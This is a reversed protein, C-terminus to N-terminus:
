LLKTEVAGVGDGRQIRIISLEVGKTLGLRSTQRQVRFRGWQTVLVAVNWTSRLFENVDTFVGEETQM